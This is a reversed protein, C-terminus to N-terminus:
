KQLLQKALAETLSAESEEEDFVDLGTEPMVGMTSLATKIKKAMLELCDVQASEEYCAYYVKVAEKQGIRWSRRSAQAVTYVNYGTQAFYISPFALLDLGTKVLEPNTILVDIGHEVQDAIWDERADSNVTSRLVAAKLGAAQLLNRLRSSTDHRGTYTTYVIIRRGLQKEQRCVDLIDQEKPTPTDDDCLSPAEALIISREGPHTVQEARFCTDPWRLLANIVVGTLRNDRRALAAELAATLRLRLVRYHQLMEGSMMVMRTEESYAPLIGEGLDTLRMFVTHPLTFQAIGMPGFGPAKKVHLTTKKGRATQFSEGQDGSYSFVDILCGHQRMFRTEAAAFSNHRNAGYGMKVMVGPMARFLLYFLDSAYGGMLTGTLCLVKEAENCLVAMAQGQASGANKYEHAEDILALSFAKRPFYRKVYESPQYSIMRLAFELRGLTKELAAAHKDKFVFNGESDCLNVFDQVNDDIIRTLMDVGFTEILRDASVKGIGPLQLLFKRLKREATEDESERHRMTWLPQECQKCCERRETGWEPTALIPEDASNRQYAGCAPCAVADYGGVTREGKDNIMTFRYPRKWYAPRWYFGMRMRVRGFILYHVRKPDLRGEVLARRFRILEGIANSGNVVHVMAQPVTDLIERRWKYVLHPPSIVLVPKRSYEHQMLASVCIGMLTKGTGMEGNLFVAPLGHTVLGAYCAHIRHKQAPFPQRKLGALVDDQWNDHRGDYVVPTQRNIQAMLPEGFEALFQALPMVDDDAATKGAESTQLDTVADAITMDAIAAEALPADVDADVTVTHEGATAPMATASIAADPYPSPAGEWSLVIRHARRAQEAYESLPAIARFAPNRCLEINRRSKSSVSLATALVEHLDVYGLEPCGAGLDCLGFAIDDDDIETLLWQHSTETLYLHVVPQPDHDKRRRHKSNDRLAAFHKAGLVTLVDTHNIGDFRTQAAANVADPTSTNLNM